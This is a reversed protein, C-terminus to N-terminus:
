GRWRRKRGIDVHVFNKAEYIGIGNFGVDEALAALRETTIGRGAIDAAKGVLHMSNKVGGVAKNHKRCRYGSDIHIPKLVRARLRELLRVLEPHVIQNGCGCKCAFEAPKFHKTKAWEEDAMNMLLTKSM